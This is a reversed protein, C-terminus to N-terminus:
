AAMGAMDAAGMALLAVQLLRHGLQALQDHYATLTARFGPLDPWQNPGSLYVKDDTTADERMMMFSESQNPKTVTALRSNVDTSTNLPIYGRHNQDLAVRMKAALPQAHFSRNAAFVDQVLADDVGHNVLYAFGVNGYADAFDRALARLNRGEALASGDLLPISSFENM